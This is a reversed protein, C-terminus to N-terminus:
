PLTSDYLPGDDIAPGFEGKNLPVYVIVEGSCSNFQGDDAIFYVHYARGNAEGDREIRLRATDSGIGDGDPWTNGDNDGNVLEDQWISEITIFVPDGDPDTVGLISIPKLKHNVPWLQDKSPYATTCVPPGNLDLGVVVPDHDSARYADPSYYGPPNYYNEYDIVAPEDTNIHWITTGTVQATINSNGLSHDLYGVMGDFTYSYAYDGEFAKVLNIFGGDVLARIPDEMAYANLDGIIMVDLDGSTAQVAPVVTDILYQAALTRTVNCSAQEPDDDGPGCPSGKSKLHNVIPTFIAGDDNARFTQAIAPRNRDSGTNNPDVFATEDVVL